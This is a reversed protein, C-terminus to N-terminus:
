YPLHPEFLAKPVVFGDLLLGRFPTADGCDGSDFELLPRGQHVAVAVLENEETLLLRPSPAIGQDYMGSLIDQDCASFLTHSEIHNKFALLTGLNYNLTWPTSVPACDCTAPYPQKNHSESNWCYGEGHVEFVVAEGEFSELDATPASGVGVFALSSSSVVGKDGEGESGSQSGNGSGSGRDGMKLDVCFYASYINHDSFGVMLIGSFTTNSPSSCASITTLTDSILGVSTTLLIAGESTESFVSINLSSGIRKAGAYSSFSWLDVSVTNNDTGSATLVFLSSGDELFYPVELLTSSFAFPSDSSSPFSGGQEPILQSSSGDWSSLLYHGELDSVLTWTSLSPSSTSYFSPSTFSQTLSHSFVEGLQPQLQTSLTM